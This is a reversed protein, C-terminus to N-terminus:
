FESLCLFEIIETGLFEKLYISAIEEDEIVMSNNANYGGTGTDSINSSGSWVISKDFVFFKNHMIYSKHDSVINFHKYLLHTDSYYNKGKSDSDVVGKIKVGRKKANLM